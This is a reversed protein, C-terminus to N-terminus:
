RLMEGRLRAVAVSDLLVVAPGRISSTKLRNLILYIFLHLMVFRAAARCVDPRGHSDDKQLEGDIFHRSSSHNAALIRSGIFKSAM